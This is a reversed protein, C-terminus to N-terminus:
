NISLKRDENNIGLYVDDIPIDGVLMARLRDRENVLSELKAVLFSERDDSIPSSSSLGTGCGKPAVRDSGDFAMNKLVVDRHLQIENSLREYAMSDGNDFAQSRRRILAMHYKLANAADNKM